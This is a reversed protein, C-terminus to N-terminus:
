WTIPLLHKHPSPPAMLQHLSMSAASSPLKSRATPWQHQSSSLLKWANNFSDGHSISSLSLQPLTSVLSPPLSSSIICLAVFHVLSPNTPKSQDIQVHVMGMNRLTACCIGKQINCLATNRTACCSGIFSIEIAPGVNTSSNCSVLLFLHNRYQSQTFYSLYNPSLNPTVWLRLGGFVRQSTNWSKALVRGRLITYSSTSYNNGYRGVSEWVKVNTECKCFDSVKECMSWMEVNTWVKM